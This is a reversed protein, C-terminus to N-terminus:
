ASGPRRRDSHRSAHRHRTRGADTSRGRRPRRWRHLALAAVAVLVLASIVALPVPWKRPPPRIIKAPVTAPFRITATIEQRALGSVLTLHALWPGDALRPDLTIGVSGSDGPALTTGTTVTFPGASTSAPGDTLTLTGTLDLARGGTNHVGATLAPAGDPSRSATLGTIDFSSAPEGGPGIDLYVRVGVRSLQTVNGALGPAAKTHVWIVAYREGTSASPPVAITVMVTDTAHPALDLSSKALTTWTTLENATRGDAFTFADDTIAAAAPYLDVQLPSQASNSVQVRRQITQGPNLYDVIYIHARPDTRRNTPADLLKIGPRVAGGVPQRLPPRGAGHTPTAAAPAALM